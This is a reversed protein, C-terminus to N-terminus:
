PDIKEKGRCNNTPVDISSSITHYALGQAESRPTAVMACTHRMSRISNRAPMADGCSEINWNSRSSRTRGTIEFRLDRADKLESSVGQLQEAMRRLNGSTANM